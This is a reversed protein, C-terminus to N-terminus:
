ASPLWAQFWGSMAASDAARCAASISWAVPARIGDHVVGGEGVVRYQAGLM